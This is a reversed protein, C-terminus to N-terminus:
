SGGAVERIRKLFEDTVRGGPLPKRDLKEFRAPLGSFATTDDVVVPIIFPKDPHIGKVREEAYHWERRFFGEYRAETNRSLVALFCCCKDINKQIKRDFDDGASIKDFDFWVTLGAQDLAVKLEKVAALDERAYSIFVAGDPMDPPPMWSSSEPSGGPHKERWRRWLEAVFEVAGGGPFIRTCSSFRQLFLVLGPDNHMQNDALIELDERRDSLRRRKMTRLFFRALWDSFGGGLILLCNSELADFLNKPQKDGTQLACVFELMDEDSIVCSAPTASVKGLLHYVTPLYLKEKPCPLDSVHGLEYAISVTRPSGGFHVSNLADELLSDFTTTVFLNFPTIEALRLLPQPPSFKAEKLIKGVLGYLSGRRNGPDRLFQCVVDNLSPEAPLADPRLHLKDALRTAVYRELRAPAGNIEVQLLDSGIIPIVHRQEIHALLEDWLGEEDWIDASAQQRLLEQAM